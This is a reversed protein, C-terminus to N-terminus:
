DDKKEDDNGKQEKSPQKLKKEKAAKEAAEVAFDRVSINNERLEAQIKLLEARQKEKEKQRDWPGVRVVLGRVDETCAGMKAASLTGIPKAEAAPKAQAQAQDQPQSGSPGDAKTRQRRPRYRAPRGAFPDPDM